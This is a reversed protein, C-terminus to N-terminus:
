VAKIRHRRILTSLAFLILAYSVIVFVDFLSATDTLLSSFYERAIGSPLFGSTTRIIKPFFSTPYFCGSLYGLLVSSIFQILIGSIISGSMQYLLYQLSIILFIAPMFKITIVIMDSISSAFLEPVISFLRGAGLMMGFSLCAVVLGLTAFFPVFEGATQICPGYRNASMLKVLSYDRRVFLPACAIGALLILLMTVASFMYGSFSLNDSFGITETEIANSRNIILGVYELATEETMEYIEKHKFGNELLLTQLGFVGNQSEVLICSILKLVEDKFL